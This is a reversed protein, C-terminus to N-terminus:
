EWIDSINALVFNRFEQLFKTVLVVEKRRFSLDGHNLMPVYIFWRNDWLPVWKAGTCQDLFTEIQFIISFVIFQNIPFHKISNMYYQHNMSIYDDKKFRRLEGIFIDRGDKSFLNTLPATLLERTESYVYRINIDMNGNKNEYEYLDDFLRILENLSRERGKQKYFIIDGESLLSKYKFKFM